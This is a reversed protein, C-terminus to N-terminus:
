GAVPGAAGAGVWARWRQRAAFAPTHGSGAISATFQVTPHWDSPSQSLVRLHQGAAQPLAQWFGSPLGGEQERGRQGSGAGSSHASLRDWGAAGTSRPATGTAPRPVGQADPQLVTTLPQAPLGAPNPHAGARGHEGRGGGLSVLTSCSAESCCQPRHLPCPDAGSGTVARAVREAKHTAVLGPCPCQGAEWGQAQSSGGLPTTGPGAGSVVGCGGPQTRESHRDQRLAAGTSPRLLQSRWSCVRPHSGSAGTGGHGGALISSAQSHRLPPRCTASSPGWHQHCAAAPLPVASCPGRAALACATQPARAGWRPGPQAWAGRACPRPQGHCSHPFAPGLGGDPSRATAMCGTSAMCGQAPPQGCPDHPVVM